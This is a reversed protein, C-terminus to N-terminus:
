KRTRRRRFLWAVIALSAGGLTSAAPRRSGISCSSSDDSSELMESHTGGMTRVEIPGDFAHESSVGTPLVAAVRHSEPSPRTDSPMWYTACRAPLLARGQVLYAVVDGESAYTVRAVAAPLEEYCTDTLQAVLEMCDTDYQEPPPNLLETPGPGLELPYVIVTDVKADASSPLRQAVTFRVSRRESGVSAVLEHQGDALPAAPVFQHRDVLGVGRPALAVGDVTVNVTGVPSVAWFVANPPVSQTQADPYTFEISPQAADCAAHAPRACVLALVGAAVAAPREWSHWPLSRQQIQRFSTVRM